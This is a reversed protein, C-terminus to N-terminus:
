LILLLINLYSAHKQYNKNIQFSLIKQRSVWCIPDFDFLESM